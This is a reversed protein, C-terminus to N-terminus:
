DETEERNGNPTEQPTLTRVTYRRTWVSPLTRLERYKARLVPSSQRTLHYWIKHAPTHVDAGVVVCIEDDNLRLEDLSWSKEACVQDLLRFLKNKARLPFTRGRRVSWRFEFLINNMM